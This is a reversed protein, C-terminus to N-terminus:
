EDEIPVTRALKGKKDYVMKNGRSKEVNVTLEAPPPAQMEVRVEAPPTEIRSNVELKETRADVYNKVHVEPAEPRADVHNEVKIEREPVTVYNNIIPQLSERAPPSQGNSSPTPPPSEAPQLITGPPQLQVSFLGTHVLRSLDGATVATIVTDARFGADILTRMAQANIQQIEAADKMDERLFAIDRDDYWLEAGTPVRVLPSFSGAANRWLSRMTGDAFRRRAQVYVAYNAQELGESLGVIVPPVGAAAAIRTEGAGQTEKFSIQRMNAGVTDVGIAGALLLTKYANWAGEHKQAIKKQLKEIADQPYKPDFRVLLNPTAGNEFFQLKHTTAANDGMVERIIPTLWSMGRHRFLPDPYPAFHAVEEPLLPEPEQGSGPGGPFYLYGLLESDLAWPGYGSSQRSGALITVWDPRLIQVRYPDSPRGVGRRTAFFNGALDAHQIARGLLDGTTGGPWPHEFVELESTGFLEGPRGNVMRRFQFRAESFVMMRVAMCAFVIPNNRFLQVFGAFTPDPAEQKQGPLTQMGFLPYTSGGYIFTGYVSLAQQVWDNFALPPNDREGGLRRRLQDILGV